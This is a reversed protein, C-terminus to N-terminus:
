KSPHEDMIIGKCEFPGLPNDGMGYVLAETNKIAHPFTFFYIGKREPHIRKKLNHSIHLIAQSRYSVAPM